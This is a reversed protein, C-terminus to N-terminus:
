ALSEWRVDGEPDLGFAAVVRQAKARAQGGGEIVGVRKGRLDGIARVPSLAPVVLHLYEPAVAALARLPTMLSAYPGIGRLGQYADEARLLALDLQRSKVLSLLTRPNESRAATAKLDPRRVALHRALRAGLPFSGTDARDTVIVTHRARYQSWKRYPSHGTLLVAGAGLAGTLFMRRHM